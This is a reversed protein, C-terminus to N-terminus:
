QRRHVLIIRTRKQFIASIVLKAHTADLAHSVNSSRGILATHHQNVITSILAHAINIATTTAATADIAGFVGSFISVIIATNVYQRRHTNGQNGHSGQADDSHCEHRRAIHSFSLKWFYRWIGLKVIVLIIQVHFMTNITTNTATIGHRIHIGGRQIARRQRLLMRPRFKVSIIIGDKQPQIRRTALRTLVIWCEDMSALSTISANGHRGFM